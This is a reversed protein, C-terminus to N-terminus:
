IQMSHIIPVNIAISFDYKLIIAMFFDYRLLFILLDLGFIIKQKKQKAEMNQKEIKIIFM